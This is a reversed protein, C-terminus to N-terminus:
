PNEYTVQDMGLDMPTKKLQGPLATSAQQTPPGPLARCTPSLNTFSVVESDTKTFHNARSMGCCLQKVTVYIFGFM